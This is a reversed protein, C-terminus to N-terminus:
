ERRLVYFEVGGAVDTPVGYHTNLEGDVVVAGSGDVMRVDTVGRLMEASGEAWLIKWPHNGQTRFGDTSVVRTVGGGSVGIRQKALVRQAYRGMPGFSDETLTIEVTKQMAGNSGAALGRIRFLHHCAPWNELPVWEEGRM